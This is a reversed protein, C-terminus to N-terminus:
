TGTRAITVHSKGKEGIFSHTTKLGSRLPTASALSQLVIVLGSQTCVLYHHDGPTTVWRNGPVVRGAQAAMVETLGVERYHAFTLAKNVCTTCALNVHEVIISQKKPVHPSIM